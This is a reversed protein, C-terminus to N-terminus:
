FNNNKRFRFWRLATAKVRRFRTHLAAAANAAGAIGQHFPILASATSV